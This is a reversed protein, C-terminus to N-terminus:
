KDVLYKQAKYLFHVFVVILVVEEELIINMMVCFYNEIM